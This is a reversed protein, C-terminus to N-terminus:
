RVLKQAHADVSTLWNKCQSEYAAQLRRTKEGPKGTGIPKGGLRTVSIIGAGTGTLFVEDANMFADPAYKGEEVAFGMTKAIAMVNARTIGPLCNTDLSPTFLVNGQIGFVNDATAESVFGDTTLMLGEQCGAKSFELAALGNNLYNCTKANCPLVDLPPKRTQCVHVALGEQYFKEPYLQISAVLIIVTPTGCSAPNVGLDGVGRTVVLRVYGKTMGCQRVADVVMRKLREPPHPIVLDIMRASDYIRAIHEDLLLLGRDWFRIGEFVGDGYLLGHDFASIPTQHPLYAKGNLFVKETMGNVEM